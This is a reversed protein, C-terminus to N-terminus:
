LKNQNKKKWWMLLYKEINGLCCCIVGHMLISIIVHWFLCVLVRVSWIGRQPEKMGWINSIFSNSDYRHSLKVSMTDARNTRWLAFWVVLFTVFVFKLLSSFLFRCYIYIYTYTHTYTSVYIYHIHTHTHIYIYYM